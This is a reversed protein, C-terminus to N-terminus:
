NSGPNFELWTPDRVPRVSLHSFKYDYSQAGDSLRQCWAGWGSYPSASWYWGARPQGSLDFGGIAARNNFLVNLEAKTPLRWDQHGHVYLKAANKQADNFTMTLTADDPSAYMPKNTDPSIGAFITGDPMKDGIKPKGSAPLRVGDDNAIPCVKVNGSTYALISGDTRVEVRVGNVKVAVDGFNDGLSVEKKDNQQAM